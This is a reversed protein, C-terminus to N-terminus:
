MVLEKLLWWCDVSTFVNSQTMEM